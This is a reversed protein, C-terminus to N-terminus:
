LIHRWTKNKIILHVSSIHVGFAKALETQSEGAAFRRRIESVKSEDLIAQALADSRTRRPM